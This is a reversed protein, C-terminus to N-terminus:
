DGLIKNITQTVKDPDLTVQCMACHSEEEINCGEFGYHMQHCPWCDCDDTHLPYCNTWKNAYNDPSSHSLLLIKPIDEFQVGLAVGTEPTVILDVKYCFAMTDRVTWKGAKLKVRPENEWGQQLLKSGEDGVLVVTATPHQILVRAIVSDQHPYIKHASSGSVIFLIVPGEGLKQRRKSAEIKERETPYFKGTLSVPVGSIKATVEYCCKNMMEHRFKTPWYYSVRDPLSLLTGEISESLNIFKDYKKSTHLIFHRFEEAPVQGPDQLVFRDINPDHKIPEYSNVHTYLTIHFGQKKLESFICSTIMMDGIGGYRVVACKLGKVAAEVQQKSGTKRQLCVYIYGDLTLVEKQLWGKKNPVCDIISDSKCIFNFFGNPKVLEWMKNFTPTIENSEISETHFVIFDMSHPRFLKVENEDIKVFHPYTKEDSPSVELGVGRTYPVM